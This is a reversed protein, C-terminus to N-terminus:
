VSLPKEEKPCVEILLLAKRAFGDSVFICEREEAQTSVTLVLLVPHSALLLMSLDSRVFLIIADM